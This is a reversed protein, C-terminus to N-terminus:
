LGKRQREPLESNVIIDRLKAIQQEIRGRTKNALRVSYGDRGSVSRLRFRTSVGTAQLLFNDFADYPRDMQWPSRFGEVGCEEAAAAVLTMYELRIMQDFHEPTERTILRNLNRRCIEEFAVFRETLDIPLSSYDEPSILDM